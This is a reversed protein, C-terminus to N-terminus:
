GPMGLFATYRRTAADVARREPATLERAPECTVRVSGRELRRRWTGVVRGGIVITPSLLTPMAEFRAPDVAASRDRYGVLYEDFPPLLHAGAPLKRPAEGDRYWYTAGAIDEHALQSTVMALAARADPASLGSWWAFDQVTAPGHGTFYRLALKALAEDRPLPAVPPLWEDLLVFTQQKGERAGFCIIGDHALRWLIHFGRRGLVGHAATSIGAGDLKRYLADRTLARGGTLAKTVVTRARRLVAEDMELQRHRLGAGAITRSALLALLWRVDEAAVFHLTGRMPWTRVITREGIAREVDAETVEPLRLGIAWKGGPYDQAQVAGLWSVVEAPTNFNHHAIQQTLLRRDTIKM